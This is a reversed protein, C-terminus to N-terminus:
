WILSHYCCICRELEALQGETLLHVVLGSSSSSSSGAGLSAAAEEEEAAGASAAKSVAAPAAVDSPPQESNAGGSSGGGSSAPADALLSVEAGALESAGALLQQLMGVADPSAAVVAVHQRQQQGSLQCDAQLDLLLQLLAAARACGGSAAAQPGYIPPSTSAESAPPQIPSAEAPPEQQQQEPQPTPEWQQQLVWHLLPSAAAVQLIRAKLPPVSGGFPPPGAVGERLFAALSELAPPLRALCAALGLELLLRCPLYCAAPPCAPLPPVM